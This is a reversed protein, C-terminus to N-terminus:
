SQWAQARKEMYDVIKGAYDNGELAELSRLGTPSTINVESIRNGILDAGALEIGSSKLFEGLRGLVAKQATSLPASLATGGQALNSIFGGSKPMRTFQALLEGGLFFVRRDGEKVVEGVFPQVLAEDTDASRSSAMFDAASMKEVGGGAFGLFPKTIVEHFKGARAFDKARDLTGMHTSIIDEDHLFGQAHAELPVLKEHYRLLLSPRNFMWTKSEALALLWCLRVYSADFPPDRRILVAEMSSLEQWDPRGLVPLEDRECSEVPFAWASVHGAYEIGSDLAWFVRHGRRLMERVLVLSSDGKPKLRDVPDAVILFKGKATM